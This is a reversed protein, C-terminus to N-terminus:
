VSDVYPVFDKLLDAGFLNDTNAPGRGASPALMADPLPRRYPMGITVPKASGAAIPNDLILNARGV